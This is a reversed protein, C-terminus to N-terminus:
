GRSKALREAAARAEDVDSYNTLRVILGEVLIGSNALITKGGGYPELL